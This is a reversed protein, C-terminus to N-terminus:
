IVDNLQNNTMKVQNETFIPGKNRFHIIDKTHKLKTETVEESLNSDDLIASEM